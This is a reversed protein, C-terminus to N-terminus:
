EEGQDLTVEIMKLNARLMDDRLDLRGEELVLRKYITFSQEFLSFAATNDGLDRVAAAKRAYALALGEVLDDQGEEKVLRERIAIVQDYLPVAAGNDGLDSLTNAKNMCALALNAALDDRGEESVLREYLAIARDYFPISGAYDEVEGMVVGKNMYALALDYTLDGRDEQNVLREYLSISQDYVTLAARHDGLNNLTYAKDFYANALDDCYERREKRTVLDEFIALGEGYLQLAAADNGLSSAEAAKNRYAEALHYRGDISVLRERLAIVKDYVTVADTRGAQMPLDARSMLIRALDDASDGHDEDGNATDDVEPSADNDESEQLFSAKDADAKTLDQVVHQRCERNVPHENSAVAQDILAAGRQAGLGRLTNAKEQQARALTSALEQRGELNILREYIAIAQECLPLAAQNDGLVRAAVAKNICVAALDAAFEHRGDHQVLHEFITGAQDFLAVAASWRGLGCLSNGKNLYVNALDDAQDGRGESNVLRERIAIAKDYLEVAALNNGLHSVASAKNTYALALHNALTSRGERNVLREYIAIAHDFLTVAGQNDGLNILSTAKNVCDAALHDAFEQRGQRHVLEERIGIARDKLAVAQRVDGLHGVAIAKSMYLTALFDAFRPQGETSVLQECQDIAQDYLRLCGPHDGAERHLTATLDYLKLLNEEHDKRGSDVLRRYITLAEEYVAMDAILQAQRTSGRAPLRDEMEAIDRGEEELAAQLWIRPDVWQVGTTTRRDHTKVTGSKPRPPAKRPHAAGVEQCYVKGVETAVEGLSGWREAPDDRFCRRLVEALGAPLRPLDAREPKAKLYEELIAAAMTGHQWILGGTYMELVSLGWSWVDTRRSLQQGAAQEPSCYAQTMGGWSVLISDRVRRDGDREAQARARALGFDAVKAIGDPTLLLNGPKVDQHVLGLEHAAHLGWAFQIAVDLIQEQSTLRGTSIWEHLSGGEVYEAFIAVEDGITRFFRCATLHPHEPLDIWTQLEDLFARRSDADGANAPLV